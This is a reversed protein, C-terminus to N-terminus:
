DKGEATPVALRQGPRLLNPDRGIVPRNQRYWDPWGLAIQRDTATPGIRQATLRWLSDGPKVLV